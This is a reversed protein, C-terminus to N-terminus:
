FAPLFKVIETKLNNKNALDIMMKTGKSKGDWFCICHTAYEVMQKNRLYGAQKGYRNWDAPFKKLKLNNENAYLEGLRDAGKATGSVIEIDVADKLCLSLRSKLLEYDNFDRSGAVIIKM